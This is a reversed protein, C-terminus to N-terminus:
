DLECSRSVVLVNRLEVKAPILEGGEMSFADTVDRKSAVKLFDPLGYLQNPQQNATRKDPRLPRLIPWKHEANASQVTPWSPFPIERLIDGQYYYDSDPRDDYWGIPDHM